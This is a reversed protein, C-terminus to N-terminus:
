SHRRESTSAQEALRSRSMVFASCSWKRRSNVRGAGSLEVLSTRCISWSPREIRGCGRSEMRRPPVLRVCGGGTAGATGRGRRPTVAPRVPGPRDHPHPRLRLLPPHRVGENPRARRAAGPAAPRARGGPRRHRDELRPTDAPLFQVFEDVHGVGLWGTDLM